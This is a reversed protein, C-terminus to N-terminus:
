SLVEFVMVGNLIRLGSLWTYMEKEFILRLGQRQFLAVWEEKKKFQGAHGLFEFNYLKDRLCTWWGGLRHRFLDEVVIVRGQTVRKAERIVSEPDPIHHLVTILLSADFSKDPFPIRKGDYIVVPAKQFGPKVVDIVTHQHGREILPKHYFGWGGGIDLVRSAPPLYAEFAHVFGEARESLGLSPVHRVVADLVNRQCNKIAQGVRDM